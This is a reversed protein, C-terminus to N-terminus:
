IWENDDSDNSRYLYNDGTDSRASIPNTYISAM